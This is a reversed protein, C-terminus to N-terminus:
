IQIDILLNLTNKLVNILTSNVFEDEHKLDPMDYIRCNEKYWQENRHGECYSDTYNHFYTADNFPVFNSFDVGGAMHNPVFDFIVWIDNEHCKEILQKLEEKTGFHENINNLDINHYGHYSGEKNKLPPSIWIANFGMGAIYDLHNMIGKFTGGCYADM